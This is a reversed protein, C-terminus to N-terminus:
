LTSLKPDANDICSSMAAALVRVNPELVMSDHNGPVEFVELNDTYQRWGNDDTIIQRDENTVRGGRLKYKVPLKPRFLKAKIALPEIEYRSLARYFALEMDNSKFEILDDDDISSVNM